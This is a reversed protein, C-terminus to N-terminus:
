DVMMYFHEKQKMKGGCKPCQGTIPNWQVIDKSNCDPCKTESESITINISVIEKCKKCEYNCHDGSALTYKGCPETLVEYGCKECNYCRWIAM